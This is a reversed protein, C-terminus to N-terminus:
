LVAWQMASKLHSRLRDHAACPGVAYITPAEHRGECRIEFPAGTESAVGAEVSGRTAERARRGDEISGTPLSEQHGPRQTRPSARYRGKLTIVM